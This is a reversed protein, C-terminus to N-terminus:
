RPPEGLLKDVDEVSRVVGTIGGLLEIIKLFKKQKDETRTGGTKVELAVFIGRGEVQKIGILDASGVCLGALIRKAGQFLVVDGGETHGRRKGVWAVATENRWLRLDPRAGHRKLIKSILVAEASATM